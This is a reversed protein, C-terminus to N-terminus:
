YNVKGEDQLKEVTERDPYYQQDQLDSHLNFLNMKVEYRNKKSYKYFICIDTEGEKSLKGELSECIGILREREKNKKAGRRENHSLNREPAGSKPDIRVKSVYGPFTKRYKEIIASTVVSTFTPYGLQQQMEDVMETIRPKAYFSHRKSKENPM